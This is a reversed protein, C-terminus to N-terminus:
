HATPLRGPKDWRMEPGPLIHGSPDDVEIRKAFFGAGHSALWGKIKERRLDNETLQAKAARVLVRWEKCDFPVPVSFDQGSHPDVMKEIPVFMSYGRAMEWGSSRHVELGVEMFVPWTFLNRFRFHALTTTGNTSYQMLRIQGWPHPIKPNTAKLACFGGIVGLLLLLVVCFFARKAVNVAHRANASM